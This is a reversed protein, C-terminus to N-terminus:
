RGVIGSDGARVKPSSQVPMMIRQAHADLPEMVYRRKCVICAYVGVDMRMGCACPFACSQCTRPPTQELTKEASGVAVVASLRKALGLAASFPSHSGIAAAVAHVM